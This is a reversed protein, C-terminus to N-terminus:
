TATRSFHLSIYVRVTDYEEFEDREKPLCSRGPPAVNLLGTRLEIFTGRILPVLHTFFLAHITLVTQM